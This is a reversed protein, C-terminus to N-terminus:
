FGITWFLKRIQLFFIVKSFHTIMMMVLKKLHNRVLQPVIFVCGRDLVVPLKRGHDTLIFFLLFQSHQRTDLTVRLQWSVFITMFEPEWNDSKYDSITLFQLIITWFRPFNDLKKFITLIKLLQSFQWFNSLFVSFITWVM